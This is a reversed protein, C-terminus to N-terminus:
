IKNPHCHLAVFTFFLNNLYMTLLYIQLSILLVNWKNNFSQQFKNKLMLKKIRFILM